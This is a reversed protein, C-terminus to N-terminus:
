VGTPQKTWPLQIRPETGLLIRRINGVHRVIVLVAVLVIVTSLAANPWVIEATAPDSGLIRTTTSFPAATTLFHTVILAVAFGISGISITRTILVLIVWTALGVFTAIPALCVLVGITTAVGKGGRMNLYIPFIHGLIAAFGVAEPLYTALLDGQRRLALAALVPLAGKCFDLVFVLVFYRVGLVRGVNTAGINGSGQRRIDEGSKWRTVLYGFPIGGILYGLVQGVLLVVVGRTDM